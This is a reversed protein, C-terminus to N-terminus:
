QTKPSIPQSVAAIKKRIADINNKTTEIKLSKSANKTIFAAIIINYSEIFINNLEIKYKARVMKNKYSEM